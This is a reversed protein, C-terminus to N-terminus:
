LKVSELTHAVTKRKETLYRRIPNDYVTMTLYAMGILLIMGVSIILTLQTTNPKNSTFYNFFMWMVAYHTMYLPYSIKGSFVCLKKLGQSPDTGASFAILLPFYFLVVIPETLWNWKESFPMVFALSLLISLGAFGIKSKIIWNFRYILLGALFSYAVRISGDWFSDKGWGGMVNGSRHAVFCLAGASVVALLFLTRRSLRCLILAYVINAIYEWFLSWAPANLSFLNFFRDTMVPYPILFVSCLFILILQGAGYLEPHGGFPDFLFTLLGLVSGFIVLPHLRIIRSKFFEKVGMEVLRDDYAYGIVFGSLCFFFDVALFGHAIFNKSPVYAIEMFHFLVVGIAAIGRLGDLIDFHQKTKLVDTNIKHM